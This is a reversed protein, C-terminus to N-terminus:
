IIHNYLSQEPCFINNHMIFILTYNIYYLMYITIRLLLSLKLIGHKNKDPRGYNELNHIKFNDYFICKM